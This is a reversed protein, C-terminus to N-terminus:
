LMDSSFNVCCDGSYLRKVAFTLIDPMVIGSCVIHVARCMLMQSFSVIM